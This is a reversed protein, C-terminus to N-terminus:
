SSETSRACFTILGPWRRDLAKRLKDNPTATAAAKALIVLDVPLDRVPSQRFSERIVRKIRNREVARRATRKSVAIGLRASGRRNPRAIVTFFSDSARTGYKFVNDFDAASRLRSDRGFTRTSSLGSHPAQARQRPASEIDPPWRPDQPPCPLWAYPCAQAQQASLYTEHQSYENHQRAIRRSGAAGRSANPQLGRM